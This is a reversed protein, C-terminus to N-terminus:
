INPNRNNKRGDRELEWVEIIYEGSKEHYEGVRLVNHLNRESMGTLEVLQRVSQVLKKGKIGKYTFYKMRNALQRCLYLVRKQIKWFKQSRKIYIGKTPAFIQPSPIGLAFTRKGGLGRNDCV